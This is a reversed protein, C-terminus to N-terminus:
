DEPIAMWLLFAIITIAVLARPAVMILPLKGTLYAAAMTLTYLGLSVVIVFGLVLLWMGWFSNIRTDPLSIKKKLRTLM